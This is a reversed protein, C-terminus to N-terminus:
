FLTIQKEEPIDLQNKKNKEVLKNNKIDSEILSLFDDELSIKNAIKLNNNTSLQYVTKGEKIAKNVAIMTGSNEKAEPVIIVNSLAAQIRDRKAYNFNSLITGTSYESVLLGGNQIIRKALPKNSVPQINDISSPLVSITKGAVELCSEHGIKDIGLALGSVIVYKTALKKTLTRTDEISKESPHRTGIIAVTESSLLDIDGYYYLYLVPDSITYLKSPFKDDFITIININKEKNLQIEKEAEKFCFDFETKSTVQEINNVCDEISYNNKIIYKLAKSPGIGSCKLLAIIFIEKNM